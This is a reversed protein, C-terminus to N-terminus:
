KLYPLTSRKRWAEGDRRYFEFAEESSARSGRYM